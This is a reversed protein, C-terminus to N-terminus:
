RSALREMAWDVFVQVRMPLHRRSPYLITHVLPGVTWGTLIRQLRRERMSSRVWEGGPAQLIGLGAVGAALFTNADNFAVPFPGDVVIRETGRTFDYTSFGGTM